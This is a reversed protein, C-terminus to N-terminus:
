FIDQDSPLGLALRKVTFDGAPTADMPALAIPITFSKTTSIEMIVKSPRDTRSWIMGSSMDVDGSQLGHTFVPRSSASSLSPM